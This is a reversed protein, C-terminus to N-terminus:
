KYYIRAKELSENDEVNLITVKKDFQSLLGSLVRKPGVEIFIDFNQNILNDMSDKWLVPYSVQKVLNEKIKLPKDEFDARVNSVVPINPSKFERSAFLEELKKGAEEMLQTHFAGSVKLEVVRKAGKERTLRIAEDVAEKEGSIVTQRPSNYNAISILGKAQSEKCAKDIEEIPLDIVAAMKGPHRQAAEAMWLSRKEVIELGQKFSLCGSAILATYEGLSHGAMALPEIGTKTLMEYSSLSTLLVATQSIETNKLSESNGKFIKDEIDVGLIDGAEKYLSRISESSEYFDKGMGPYQSGQGPFLFAIKGM